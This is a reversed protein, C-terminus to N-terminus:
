SLAEILKTTETKEAGIISEGYSTSNVFRIQPQKQILFELSQKSFEFKMRRKEPESKKPLPDTESPHDSTKSPVDLEGRFDMGAIVLSRPEFYSALYCARDGDMFGGINRVNELSSVQTTGFVSKDMQPVLKRILDINDGHAHVFVSREESQSNLVSESSSDLDSVTIQPIIMFETLVDTAGDAAIVLNKAKRAIPYLTMIDSELSPGAGFVVCNKRRLSSYLRAFAEDFSPVRKQKLLLSLEDRAHEDSEKSYGLSSSISSYFM